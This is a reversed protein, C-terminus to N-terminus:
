FCPEWFQNNIAWRPSTPTQPFDSTSNQLETRCKWSWAVVENITLSIDPPTSITKSESIITSSIFIFSHIFSHLSALIPSLVLPQLLIRKVPQSLYFHVYRSHFSFLFPRVTRERYLEFMVAMSDVNGDSNNRKNNHRVWRVHNKILYLFCMRKKKEIEVQPASWEWLHFPATQPNFQRCALIKFFSHSSHICSGWHALSIM